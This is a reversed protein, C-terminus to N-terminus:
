RRQIATFCRGEIRGNRPQCMRPFRRFPYREFPAIRAGNQQTVIFPLEDREYPYQSASKDQADSTATVLSAEPYIANHRISSYVGVFSHHKGALTSNVPGDETDQLM